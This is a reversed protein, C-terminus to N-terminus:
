VKLGAATAADIVIHARTELTVVEAALLAQSGEAHFAAYGDLALNPLVPRGDVRVVLDPVLTFRLVGDPMTEGEWGMIQNVKDQWTPSAAQCFPAAALLAAFSFATIWPLRLARPFKMVTLRM